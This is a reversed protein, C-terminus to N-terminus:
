RLHELRPRIPELHVHSVLLPKVQAVRAKALNVQTVSMVDRYTQGLILAGDEQHARYVGAKM